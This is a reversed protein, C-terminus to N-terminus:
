RHLFTLLGPQFVPECLGNGIFKGKTSLINKATIGAISEGWVGGGGGGCTPFGQSLFSVHLVTGYKLSKKREVYVM